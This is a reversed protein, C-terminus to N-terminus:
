KSKCGAIHELVEARTTLMRNCWPCSYVMEDEEDDTEEDSSEDDEMDENEDNDENEEEMSIGEVDPVIGQALEWMEKSNNRSILSCLSWFADQERMKQDHFWLFLNLYEELKYRGSQPLWRKVTRWLGEIGNTHLTRDTPDVYYKSHDVWRHLYGLAPLKRYARWGDTFLMTGRVVNEQVIPWLIKKTRKNFPCIRM